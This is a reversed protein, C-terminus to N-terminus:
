LMKQMASLYYIPIMYLLRQRLTLKGPALLRLWEKQLLQVSGLAWRARQVAYPLLTAPALAYALPESHYVTKYGESHLLLSTHTDETVTGTAFGGIKEMASRRHLTGSGCSTATEHWDLGPEMIDFYLAQEHWMDHGSKQAQHQFSDINY